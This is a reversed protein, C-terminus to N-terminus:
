FILLKKKSYKTYVAYRVADMCNHVLIGNAFYEHEDEVTLDYVEEIWSEEQEFHKLKVTKIASSQSVQIGQPIIKEVYKVSWNRVLDILGAPKEMNKIGSEEKMQNTGSKQLKLVKLISNKLGNLTRKLGKKLQTAFTYLVVFLTLTKLLITIRIM